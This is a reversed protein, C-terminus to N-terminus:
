RLDQYLTQSCNGHKIQERLGQLDTSWCYGRWVPKMGSQPTLRFLVLVQSLGWGGEEYQVFCKDNLVGAFALRKRPLSEDYIVDTASFRKGPNVITLRSGGEETFAQVVPAPLKRVDSIIRFDGDLFDLKEQDSLNFKSFTLRPSEGLPRAPWGFVYVATFVVLVAFSGVILLAVVLWKRRKVPHRADTTQQDNGTTM